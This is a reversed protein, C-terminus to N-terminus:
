FYTGLTLGFSNFFLVNPYIENLTENRMYFPSTYSHNMSAEIFYFRSNVNFIGSFTLFYGYNEEFTEQRFGLFNIRPLEESFTVKGGVYEYDEWTVKYSDLSYQYEGTLFTSYFAGFSFTLYNDNKQYFYFSLGVPFKLFTFNEKTTLNNFEYNRDDESEQASISFDDFTKKFFSRELEVATFFHMNEFFNLKLRLGFGDGNNLNKHPLVVVNKNVYLGVYKKAIDIKYSDQYNEPSIQYVQGFFDITFSLVVILIVLKKM